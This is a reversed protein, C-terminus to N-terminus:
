KNELHWHSKSLIDNGDYEIYMAIVDELKDVSDLGLHKSLTTRLTSSISIESLLFSIEEASGYADGWDDYVEDSYRIIYGKYSGDEESIDDVAIHDILAFLINDGDMGNSVVVAYSVLTSMLMTVDNYKPRRNTSELLDTYIRDYTKKYWKRDM